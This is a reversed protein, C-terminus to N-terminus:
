INFITYIKKIDVRRIQKLELEMDATFQIYSKHSDTCLITEKGIRNDYLRKLEDSTKRGTGLLEIIM